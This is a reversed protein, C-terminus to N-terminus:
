IDNARKRDYNREERPIFKSCELHNLKPYVRRNLIRCFPQGKEFESCFHCQKCYKPMDDGERGQCDVERQKEKEYDEVTNM